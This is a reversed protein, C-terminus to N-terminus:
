FIDQYLRAGGSIGFSKDNQRQIRLYSPVENSKDGTQVNDKNQLEKM